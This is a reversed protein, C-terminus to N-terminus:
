SASGALAGHALATAHPAAREIAHEVIWARLDRDARAALARRKDRGRAPTTV